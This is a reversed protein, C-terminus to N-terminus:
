SEVGQITAGDARRVEGVHPGDMTGDDVIEHGVVRLELDHAVFFKRLASWQPSVRVADNRILYMLAQFPDGNSVSAATGLISSLSYSRDIVIRPTVKYAAGVTPEPLESVLSRRYEALKTEIARVRGIIDATEPGETQATRALERVSHEINDLLAQVTTAMM